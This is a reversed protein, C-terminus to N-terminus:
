NRPPAGSPPPPVGGPAPPAGGPPPPTGGPPPPPGGPAPPPPGGPAPPLAGGPAPPPPHNGPPPPTGGPAPPPPTGGPAPPPPGSNSPPPPGSNSTNNSPAARRPTRNSSGYSDSLGISTDTKLRRSRTRTIQSRTGDNGISNGDDFNRPVKVLPAAVDPTPYIPNSKEIEHIFIRGDWGSGQNERLKSQINFFMDRIDDAYEPNSSLARDINEHCHPMDVLSDNELVGLYIVKWGSYTFLNGQLNLSKISTNNRLLDGIVIAVDDSLQNNRLDLEEINKDFLCPIFEMAEEKLVSNKGGILGLTRVRSTSLLSDFATVAQEDFSVVNQGVLLSDLNNFLPFVCALGQSKLKTNTLDFSKINNVGKFSQAIDVAGDVGFNNNSANLVFDNLDNNGGIAQILMQCVRSSMNCSSVDLSRLKKYVEIAETVYHYDSDPFNNGSVNIEELYETTVRTHPFFASFSLNTNALHLFRLNNYKKTISFWEGLTSSGTAGIDNGSFNLYDLCLSMGYNNKLSQIVTIMVKSPIQCNELNLVTLAHSFMDLGEVLQPIGANINNHGIDIIQVQHEENESLSRGFNSIDTAGVGRVQIKTITRNYRLANGLLNFADRCPVDKMVVGRFYENFSLARALPNMDFTIGTKPLIGPIKGIDIDPINERDISEVFRHISLKAPVGVLNCQAEYNEIMGAAPGIPQSRRPIDSGISSFEVTPKHEEPYGPTLITLAGLIVKFIKRIKSSKIKIEGAEFRFIVTKSEVEECNRLELLPFNKEANISKGFTGKKFLFVRYKSIALVKKGFKKGKGVDVWERFLIEDPPNRFGSVFDLIAANQSETIDQNKSKKSM